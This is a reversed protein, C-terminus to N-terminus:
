LKCVTIASAPVKREVLVEESSVAYNHAPGRLGAETAKESISLDTISLNGVADPIVDDTDFTVTVQGSERNAIALDKNVTTSIFQSGKFTNKSGNRVHGVSAMGRGPVRASVGANASEDPRLNRYVKILGSPRDM